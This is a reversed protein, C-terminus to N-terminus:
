PSEECVVRDEGLGVETALLDILELKNENADSPTCKALALAAQANGAIVVMCCRMDFSNLWVIEYIGKM